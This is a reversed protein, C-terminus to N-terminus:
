EPSKHDCFRISLIPPTSSENKLRFYQTLVLNLNKLLSNTFRTYIDCQNTSNKTTALLRLIFIRNFLFLTCESKHWKWCIYQWHTLFYISCQILTYSFQHQILALAHASCIYEFSVQLKFCTGGLESVLYMILPIIQAARQKGNYDYKSNKRRSSNCNM